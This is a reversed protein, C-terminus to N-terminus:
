EMATRLSSVPPRRPRARALLPGRRDNQPWLAFVGFPLLISFYTPRDTPRGSASPQPKPGDDSPSASRFTHCERCVVSAAGCTATGESSTMSHQLSPFPLSLCLSTPTPAFNPNKLSFGKLGAAGKFRPPNCCCCLLPLMKRRVRHNLSPPLPLPPLPASSASAPLLLMSNSHPVRVRMSAPSRM